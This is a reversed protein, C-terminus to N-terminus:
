GVVRMTRRKRVVMPKVNARAGQNPLSGVFPKVDGFLNKRVADSRLDAIAHHGANLLAPKYARFEDTFVFRKKQPLSLAHWRLYLENDLKKSEYFLIDLKKSKVPYFGHRLWAYGGVDSTEVEIKNLGFSDCLGRSVRLMEKAIGKGQYKKTLISFEKHELTKDAEDVVREMHIFKKGRAWFEVTIYFTKKNDTIKNWSESFFNISVYSLHPNVGYVYKCFREIDKRFLAFQPTSLAIGDVEELEIVYPTKLKAM